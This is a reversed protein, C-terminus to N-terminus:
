AWADRPARLHSMGQVHVPCPCCPRPWRERGDGGPATWQAPRPHLTSGPTPRVDPWGGPSLLLQGPPLQSPSSELRGPAPLGQPVPAVPSSPGRVGGPAPLRDSGSAPGGSAGPAWPGLRPLIVSNGHGGEGRLSAEPSGPPPLYTSPISGGLLGAWCPARLPCRLPCAVRPTRTSGSGPGELETSGSQLATCLRVSGGLM